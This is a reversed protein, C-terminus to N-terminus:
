GRADGCAGRARLASRTHHMVARTHTPPRVRRGAGCMVPARPPACVEECTRDLGVVGDSTGPLQLYQLEGETEFVAANLEAASVGGAVTFTPAKTDAACQVGREVLRRVLITLPPPCRSRTPDFV